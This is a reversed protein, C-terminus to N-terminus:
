DIWRLLTVDAARFQKLLTLAVCSLEHLGPLEHFVCFNDYSPGYGHELIDKSKKIFRERLQSGCLDPACNSSLSIAGGIMKAM